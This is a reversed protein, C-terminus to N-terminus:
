SGDEFSDRGCECGLHFGGHPLQGDQIGLLVTHRGIGKSPSGVASMIAVPEDDGMWVGGIVWLFSTVTRRIEAM